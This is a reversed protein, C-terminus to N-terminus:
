KCGVPDGRYDNRQQFIWGFSRKWCCNGFDVNYTAPVWNSWTSPNTNTTSYGIWCTIGDGQGAPETIGSKYVQAFVDFNGGLSITGNPPFQLNAWDIQPPPNVILNGSVYNIGDWFGGGGVNCGGNVFPVTGQPFRCALYYSGLVPISPGIDVWYEDNNGVDLNYNAPIWTWGTGSPDSNSASYGIWCSIGAGQGGAETVGPEYVQAYVGYNGGLTITGTSPWQLNVWDLQNSSGIASPVTNYVVVDDVFIKAANGTSSIGIFTNGTINTNAPL